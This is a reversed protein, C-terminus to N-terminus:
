KAKTFYNDPITLAEEEEKMTLEKNKSDTTRAEGIQKRISERKQHKKIENTSNKVSLSM